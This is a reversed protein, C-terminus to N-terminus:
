RPQDRDSPAGHVTCCDDHLEGKQHGCVVGDRGRACFRARNHGGQQLRTRQLGIIRGELDGIPADSAHWLRVNAPNWGRHGRRRAM